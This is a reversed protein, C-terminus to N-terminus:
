NLGYQRRKIEIEKNIVEVYDILTERPNRGYLIVNRAANDLHRGTYYGGPTEPIPKVYQWQYMLNKADKVPWALENLAEINATPWRASAGLLSEMQRGYETQTERSTWWKMFEWAAEKDKADKLMFCGAVVASVSRNIDGNEDRSGPVPAFDWLGRIEPAFVALSNYLTYDFIGVPVEGTRFRNLFNMQVPVKYANYIRTWQNFAKIGTEDSLICRGTERDYIQGGNQYLLMAYVPNVSGAGDMPSPFGIQMNNKQLEPILSFMENWDNPIQLGLDQFIDKRYFLMPFSQTEPLGYLKDQHMLPIVASERFRDTVEKYDNFINLEQVANRIAFNIILSQGQFMVVDPGIKAVTSPLVVSPDVLRLNVSIKKQDTFTNEIMNRLVQAQDRGMGVWVTVSKNEKRESGMLNYDELFSAVFAMIERKISSFFGEKYKPVEKEPSAIVIYDIELPQEKTNLIWTGLAGINTKFSDLRKAITDPNKAMDETQVALKTLIAAESGKQNTVDYLKDRIDTIIESQKGLMRIIDPAVRDLHYDRYPDPTTGMIMIIKRYVNNLELVSEEATRLIDALDGVSNEFTITHRGKDLYFLYEEENNGLYDFQWGSNYNFRLSGAEDFPVKGDIYLKRNSYIGRAFNQRYRLGIKYLGEEEVNFDWQIWQGPIRWNYGGITNLRIRSYHYPETLSSSRDFIPYLTPDSKLVAAEGQIREFVNESMRYNNKNYKSYAEKYSETEDVNYIMIREIIVPEKIATLTISHSGETFYFSYPETYYGLMDKLTLEVWKRVEKQSPRIDNNISDRKIEGDNTWLRQLIIGRAEEFPIEGDIRLEREIHSNKGEVPYYRIGINYRGETRIDFTWTVSGEEELRIVDSGINDFGKIITGTGKDAYAPEAGNITIVEKPKRVDSYKADYAAYSEKRSYVEGSSDGSDAKQVPAGSTFSVLSGTAILLSLISTFIKHLTKKRM